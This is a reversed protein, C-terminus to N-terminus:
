SARLNPSPEGPELSIDLDDVVNAGGFSKRLGRIELKSGSTTPEPSM